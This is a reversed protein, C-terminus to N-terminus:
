RVSPNRQKEISRPNGQRSPNINGQKTLNDNGQRTQVKAKNQKVKTKMSGRTETEFGICTVNSASKPSLPQPSNKVGSTSTCTACHLLAAARLDSVM